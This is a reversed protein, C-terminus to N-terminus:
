GRRQRRVDRVWVYPAKYRSYAAVLFVVENPQSQFTERVVPSAPPIPTSALVHKLAAGLQKQTPLRRVTVLLEERGRLYVSFHVFGSLAGLRLCERNFQHVLEVARDSSKEAM